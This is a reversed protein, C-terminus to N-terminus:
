DEGQVQASHVKLFGGFLAEHSIQSVTLNDDLAIVVFVIPVVVELVVLVVEFHEFDRRRFRGTISRESSDEGLGFWLLSDGGTISREIGGGGERSDRWDGWAWCRRVRRGEELPMSHVRQEEEKGGAEPAKQSALQKM